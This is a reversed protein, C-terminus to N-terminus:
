VKSKPFELKFNVSPRSKVAEYWENLFQLSPDKQVGVLTFSFDLWCFTTIDAVSFNNGAIFKQKSFVDKNLFELYKQIFKLGSERQKLNATFNTGKSKLLQEIVPSNFWAPGIGNPLLELEIRRGWM